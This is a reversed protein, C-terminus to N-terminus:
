HKVADIDAQDPQDREVEKKVSEYPWDDLRKELEDAKRPPKESKTRKTSV